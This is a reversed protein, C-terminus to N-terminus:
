VKTTEHGGRLSTKVRSPMPFAREVTTSSAPNVLLFKSIVMNESIMHREYDDVKTVREFYQCATVLLTSTKQFRFIGM